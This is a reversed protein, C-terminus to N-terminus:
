GPIIKTSGQLRSPALIHGRCGISNGLWRSGLATVDSGLNSLFHAADVRSESRLVLTASLYYEPLALTTSVDSGLNSLFHAADMGSESGGIIM